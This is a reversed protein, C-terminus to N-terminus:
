WPRIPNNVDVIRQPEGADRNTSMDRIRDELRQREAMVVSPDREQKIMATVAANLVAFEEWGNPISADVIDSDTVLDAFQKVYRLRLKGLAMSSTPQPIVDIYQGRLAYEPVLIGNILRGILQGAYPGQYRNRERPMFRPCTFIYPKTGVIFDVGMLKFLDSPIAYSSTGAALTIDGTGTGTIVTLIEDYAQVLLDHLEQMGCNLWINLENDTIHGDNVTDSWFRAKQRMLKLTLPNGPAAIIADTSASQATADGEGNIADVVLAVTHGIDGSVPAYTSKTAGAIAGSRPPVDAWYWQFGYSTPTGTWDGTTGALPQGVAPLGSITPLSTNVPAAM